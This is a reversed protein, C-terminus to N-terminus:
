FVLNFRGELDIDSLGNWRGSADRKGLRRHTACRCRKDRPRPCQKIMQRVTKLDAAGVRYGRHDYSESGMAGRRSEEYVAIASFDCQSCNVIQVAIEDSRSDPPLEIRLNIKLSRRSSCEPCRFSM